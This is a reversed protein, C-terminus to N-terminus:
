APRDGYFRRIWRAKDIVRYDKMYKALRPRESPIDSFYWYCGQDEIGLSAFCTSLWQKMLADDGFIAEIYLPYSFRGAVNDTTDISGMCGPALREIELPRGQRLTEYLELLSLYRGNRLFMCHLDVDALVWRDMGPWYIEILSHGNDYVNYCGRHRMGMVFRARLGMEGLLRCLFMGTEYCITSLSGAKAAQLKQEYSARTHAYGHVHVAALSHLLTMLDRRYLIVSSHDRRKSLLRPKGKSEELRIRGWDWFRYLGERDLYYYRNAFKVWQQDRVILPLSAVPPPRQGKPFEAGGQLFQAQTGCLRYASIDHCVHPYCVKKPM